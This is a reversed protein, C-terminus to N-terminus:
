KKLMPRACVLKAVDEELRWYLKYGPVREDEFSGGWERREEEEKEKREMWVEECKLLFEHMGWGVPAQTEYRFWDPSIPAIRSIAPDKTGRLSIGPEEGPHGYKAEREKSFIYRELHYCADVFALLADYNWAKLFQRREDFCVEFHFCGTEDLIKYLKSRVKHLRHHGIQEEQEWPEKIEWPKTEEEVVDQAFGEMLTVERLDSRNANPGGMFNFMDPGCLGYKDLAEERKRAREKRLMIFINFLVEQPIYFGEKTKEQTLKYYPGEHKEGSEKEWFEKGQSEEEGGKKLPYGRLRLSRLADYRLEAFEKVKRKGHAINGHIISNLWWWIPAMVNSDKNPMQYHDRDAYPGVGEDEKLYIVWGKIEKTYKKWEGM